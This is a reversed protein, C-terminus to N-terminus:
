ATTKLDAQASRNKVKKGGGRCGTDAPKREREGSEGPACFQRLESVDKKGGKKKKERKAAEQSKLIAEGQATLGM